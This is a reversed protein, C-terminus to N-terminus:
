WRCGSRLTARLARKAHLCGGAVQQAGQPGKRAAPRHQVAEPDHRPGRRPDRSPRDLKGHVGVHLPHASRSPNRPHPQCAEPGNMRPMAVDTLLLHIPGTGAVAEALATPGDQAERVTYGAKRLAIAAFSRIAKEDEVLLITETGFLANTEAEHPAEVTRDESVRPFYLRFSTGAGKESYCFIYGGSQKVIGYVTALGLGTGKGMEKTTFFPEFIRSVTERDMGEGTDSVALMVYQGPVVAPHENVYADGLVTVATEVTLKGGNPMADRANAALNMMVQEIQVPDAVINGEQTALFTQLMVDEGVLRGLMNKVGEVVENLSIVRPQLVQKRSFALLQMTLNAARGAATRIESMERRLPSDESLGAEVLDTYGEIVTLINNFDHAIGGALRGVAELKRAQQLQEEAKRLAEETKRSETLDLLLGFTGAFSGDGDLQPTATIQVCRVTGDPRIIRTEYRSKEGRRRKGTERLIEALDQPSLFERLNRGTIGIGSGGFITEAMPNAFVITEHPDVSIIGEGLNQVLSRYREESELLEKEARKQETIDRVSEIAGAANGNSDYLVTAKAWVFAERGRLHTVATEAILVGSEKKLIPQYNKAADLDPNRVLDILIPRRIGYFPLAYEHNGKGLMEKASVGTMEEIALNWAIVRGSRDIAFTADPLFNIIDSLRQESERQADQARRQETIDLVSVIMYPYPDSKHPVYSEIFINLKTGAPTVATSERGFRIEGKEINCITERLSALMVPDDPDLTRALPGRLDEKGEVGYLKLTADNVDVVKIMDTAKKVFEPHTLLYGPLDKVGASRLEGIAARLESTDEEWISIAAHEFIAQYRQEKLHLARGASKM